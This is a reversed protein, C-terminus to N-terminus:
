TRAISRLKMRPGFRPAAGAGLYLLRVARGRQGAYPALLELMREDTARAEGALAWAVLHPLHFDGVPVADADGLAVLGVQAASWPGIGPLATLRRWAAERAMAASEDLRAARSAAARIVEARKREVEFPHFAWYPTAALVAPSPPLRLGLPGPAPEGLKWVLGAYARHAQIGAVKQELVVPVMAEFVAQSRAIRFGPHRRHLDAIVPHRPEFVSADDEEGVLAPAAAVAWEAGPGWATVSLRGGAVTLRTSAPGDPTRTARWVEDKQVRITPDAPGRRLFGLTMRLDLPRGLEFTTQLGPTM